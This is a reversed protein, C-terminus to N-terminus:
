GFLTPRFGLVLAGIRTRRGSFLGLNEFGERAEKLSARLTAGSTLFDDVLLIEPDEDVEAPGRKQLHSANGIEDSSKARVGPRRSYRADGKSRAQNSEGLHKSPDLALLEFIKASKRASSVMEAFRLTSGGDLIWKREASQPVPLLILPVRKEAAEPISRRVQLRLFADLAPSASKKWSKLVGAGPGISLYVSRISEFLFEGNPGEIRM